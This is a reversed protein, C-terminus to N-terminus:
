PQSSPMSLKEVLRVLASRLRPLLGGLEEAPLIPALEDRLKAESLADAAAQLETALEGRTMRSRKALKPLRSEIKALRADLVKWDPTAGLRVTLFYCDYLDRLLRRENWAALQHALACDLAMVRVVRSPQGQAAAFGATAVATTPCEMAVNAEIQIAAADIRITARVMKSHTAVTLAAGDIEGLVRELRKRIDNQSRFPVFVYDIDTTSRKCDFLRLAIGGKLIAHEEFAEAFRHLVWLLLGDSTVPRPLPTTM